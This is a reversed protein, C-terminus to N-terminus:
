ACVSRVRCGWHPCREHHNPRTSSAHLRRSITSVHGRSPRDVGPLPGHSERRTERALELDRMCAINEEFERRKGETTETRTGARLRLGAVGHAGSVRVDRSDELHNTHKDVM